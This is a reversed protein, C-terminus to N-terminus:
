GQINNAGTKRKVNVRNFLMIQKYFIMEMYEYLFYKTRFKLRTGYCSNFIKFM